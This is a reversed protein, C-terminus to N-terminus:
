MRAPVSLSAVRHEGQSAPVCWFSVPWAAQRGQVGPKAWPAVPRANHTEHASVIWTELPVRAVSQLLQVAPLDGPSPLVAHTDQAAPWNADEIPASQM